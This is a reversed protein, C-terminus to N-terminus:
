ALVPESILPRCEVSDNRGHAKLGTREVLTEKSACKKTEYLEHKLSTIERSMISCTSFGDIALLKATLRELKKNRWEGPLVNLCQRQQM